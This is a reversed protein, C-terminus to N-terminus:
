IDLITARALVYDITKERRLGTYIRSIAGERQLRARVMELPQEGQEAFRAVEAEVAADDVTIAERRAIADLMLACKVTEVAAPRQRERIEAWDLKVDRPDMGQGALQHVLEEVRREVERTVLSEPADASVRRSLQQLLDQRVEREQARQAERQLRAAVNSRLDALSEYSLAKAFEDDLEPLRKRRLEKVVIDYEVEAGAMSEVAYETPFTIRFTRADGVSLGTVEADFGPPNGDAGIEVGVGSLTEPRAEDGSTAEGSATRLKRRTMDLALWDGAESARGEVPEFTGQAGRLREITADVQGPEVVAPPRRLTLADLPGPDIPPATEIAATFKLPQGEDVTVDKVSPADVPEVGRERLVDDVARPILDQAVDHLIQDKFRQRVVKAPVKGPRFGPLRVRRAYSRSVRDVEVEVVETPIEVVLSKRTESVDTYEVKM